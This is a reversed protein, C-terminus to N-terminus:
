FFWDLLNNLSDKKDNLTFSKHYAGYKKCFDSLENYYDEKAKVYINYKEEIKEAAIKRANVKEDRAKLAAAEEDHCEIETDYFKKTVDSYYKM